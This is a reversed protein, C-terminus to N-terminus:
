FRYRAGLLIEHEDLHGELKYGNVKTTGSFNGFNLWRYGLDLAWNEDINYSLGANLNWVFGDKSIHATDIGDEPATNVSAHALGAGLGLYPSFETGTDIDYYVNAIFTFARLDVDMQAGAAAPHTNTTKYNSSEGFGFEFEARINGEGVKGFDYGVATNSGFTHGTEDTGNMITGGANVTLSTLNTFGYSLKESVYINNANAVSSGAACLIIAILSIRKM